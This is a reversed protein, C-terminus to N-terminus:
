KTKNVLKGDWEKRGVKVKVSGFERTMAVVDSGALGQAQRVTGRSRWLMLVAVRLRRGREECCEVVIVIVEVQVVKLRAVGVKVCVMVIEGVVSVVIEGEVGISIGEAKLM